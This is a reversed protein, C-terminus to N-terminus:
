ARKPISRNFQKLNNSKIKRLKKTFHKDFCRNQGRNWRNNWQFSLTKAQWAFKFHNHMIKSQRYLCFKLQWANTTYWRKITYSIQCWELYLKNKLVLNFWDYLTFFYLYYWFTILLLVIIQTLYVYFASYCPMLSFLGCINKFCVISPNFLKRKDFLM